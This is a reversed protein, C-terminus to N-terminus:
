LAAVAAAESHLAATDDATMKVNAGNQRGLWRSVQQKWDCHVRYDRTEDQTAMVVWLRPM